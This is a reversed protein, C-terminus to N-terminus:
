LGITSDLKLADVVILFEKLEILIDRYTDINIEADQILKAIDDDNAAMAKQEFSVIEFLDAFGKSLIINVFGNEFSINLEHNPYEKAYEKLREMFTPTLMYRADVQDTTKVTFVQNFHLDETIVSSYSENGIKLDYDCTRTIITKGKFPKNSKVRLFLSNGGYQMELKDKEKLSGIEIKAGPLTVEAIDLKLDNYIIRFHDDLSDKNIKGRMKIIALNNLYSSIDYNKDKPTLYSCKSIKSLLVPYVTKKLEMTKQKYEQQIKKVYKGWIPFIIGLIACFFYLGSIYNTCSPSIPAEGLYIMFIFTSLFVICFAFIKALQIVTNKMKSKIINYSLISLVTLTFITLFVSLSIREDNLIEYATDSLYPDLYTQFTSNIMIGFTPINLILALGIVVILLTLQGLRKNYDSGKFITEKTKRYLPIVQSMCFADFETNFFEPYKRKYKESNYHQSLKKLQETAISNGSHSHRHRRRM